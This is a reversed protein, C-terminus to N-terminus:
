KKSETSGLWLKVQWVWCPDWWSERNIVTNIRYLNLEGFMLMTGAKSNTTQIKLHHWSVTIHQSPEDHCPMSSCVKVEKRELMWFCEALSSFSYPSLLVSIKLINSNMHFLNVLLILQLWMWLKTSINFSYIFSYFGGTAWNGGRGWSGSRKRQSERTRGARVMNRKGEPSTPMPPWHCWWSWAVLWGAAPWGQWGTHSESRSPLPWFLPSWLPSCGACLHVGDEIRLSASATSSPFYLQM